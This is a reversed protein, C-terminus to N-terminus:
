KEQIEKPTIGLLIIGYHIAKLIDKRNFGDKKGFRDPYKIMNGVLYGVSRNKDALILDLTQINVRDHQYHESYTKDIYNKLEELVENELFKYDIAKETHFFDDHIEGFDFQTKEENKM